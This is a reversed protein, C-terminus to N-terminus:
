KLVKKICDQVKMLSLLRKDDDCKEVTTIIVTLYQVHLVKLM